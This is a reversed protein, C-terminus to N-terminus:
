AFGKQLKKKSPLVSTLFAPSVNPFCPFFKYRQLASEFLTYIHPLISYILAIYMDLWFRKHFLHIKSADFVEELEIHVVCADECADQIVVVYLWHEVIDSAYIQTGYIFVHHRLLQFGM